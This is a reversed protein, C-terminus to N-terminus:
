LTSEYIGSSFASNPILQTINVYLFCGATGGSIFSADGTGFSFGDCAPADCCAQRCYGLSSVLTPAGPSLATGVLAGVLDMRPLSRFLTGGCNDAVPPLPFVLISDPTKVSFLSGHWVNISLANFLPAILTFIGGSVRFVGSLAGVFRVGDSYVLIDYPKQMQAFTRITGSPLVERIINNDPDCIFLSGTFFDSVAHFPAGILALTAAGGDGANGSIGTGALTSIIGDVGIRRIRFNYFDAIILNGAGDMNLGVPYNLSASSAAGGDGSFGAVGNGCITSILGTTPSISRIRHHGSDTVLLVGSGTIVMSHPYHLSASTAQMGDGNFETSGTGAFTRIVGDTAVSRIRHNTHDAIYATGDGKFVIGWPDQLCSASAPGGDGCFGPTSGAFVSIPLAVPTANPTASGSRRPWGSAPLPTGVPSASALASPLAISERLSSSYGSVKATATVNAYLFCSADGFRLETFAFAYGDCGPAGCCAIRCAGESPVALPADTLPAGVLDTRPLSRFFTAPCSLGPTLTASPSSTRSPSASMSSSSTISPPHPSPSTTPAVRCPLMAGSMTSCQGANLGCGWCSAVGTSTLACAHFASPAVSVVFSGAFSPVNGQGYANLGWCVVGGAANVLCSDDWTAVVSIAPSSASLSPVACPAQNNAECGWCFIGGSSTLVCTHKGASVSVLSSAAVAPPIGCQGNGSDGGCGWCRPVGSASLACCHWIGCSVAVQELPLDSPVSTQGERNFGWCHISGGGSLACASIQGASIAITGSSAAEPVSCQGSDYGGGCGWCSVSGSASLACAYGHGASVALQSSAASAPVSTQGQANNGWCGVGGDSARILCSFLYGTSLTARQAFRADACLSVASAQLVRQQAGPATANANLTSSQASAACCLLAMALAHLKASSPRAM